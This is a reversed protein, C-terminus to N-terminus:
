TPSTVSNFYDLESLHYNVLDELPSIILRGVKMNYNGAVETLQKKFVYGVTGVCNFSMKDFDPYRSVLNSFFDGFSKLVLENIYNDEKHEGAFKSFAALFRNPLPRNYMFDFIEAPSLSFESAFKKELKEPLYGRMFDRVLQKGIHCGSGEDGLLYGLSDINMEINKGDYICSNSGTGLIAAFGRKNGLLGRAAALLDHDVCIASGAFCRELASIIIKKNAGSSCGAGYFFVNRVRTVDIKNTLNQVLSLYIEESNIFFPNYGITSYNTQNKNKDIFIWNTKTSGSDAILVM